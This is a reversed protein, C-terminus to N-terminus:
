QPNREFVNEVSADGASNKLDFVILPTTGDDDYITKTKASLDIRWRNTNVKENTTAKTNTDSTTTEITSLSSQISDSNAITVPSRWEVDIGGGGTTPEKVPRILDARYIRRNDTQSVNTVTTNDLKINVVSNNILINAEDVFTIGGYFDRIGDETTLNYKWWSGLERAEFNTGLIIDVEDAIYDAAFKTNYSSGDLGWTIYIDCDAQTDIFSLGSSTLVGTNELEQKATVGNVYTARLRIIDGITANASLLDVSTSSGTGGSVVANDLELGKTLNYIQYRTNDLLNVATVNVPQTLTINPGTNTTISASNLLILTITGGSSNTVENITCGDLTYTGTTSFDLTGSCTVNTLTTGTGSQYNINCDFTGGNLLTGNQTTVEGTTATAGGTFTNTKFTITNAAFNRVLSASADLVLDKTGLELQNGARGVITATEGAFNDYLFSKLADYGERADDITLLADTITKNTETISTDPLMVWDITLGGLGILNANPQGPLYNYAFLPIDANLGTFRIDDLPASEGSILTSVKAVIDFSSITGSSSTGSYIQDSTYGLSNILRRNGSDEDVLYYKTTEAASGDIETLNITLNRTQQAIGYRDSLAFAVGCFMEEVANSLTILKVSTEVNSNFQILNDTNVNRTTDLSELTISDMGGFPTQYDSNLMTIVAQNYARRPWFRMISDGDLTLDRIDVSSINSLKFQKMGTSSNYMVGSYQDLVAATDNLQWVGGIRIVGGKWTMVGNHLFIPNGTGSSTSETLILGTGASYKVRGNGTEEAGYNYTGSASLELSPSGAAYPEIILIERDPDHSLTGNIILRKTELNYVVIKSSFNTGMEYINTGDLSSNLNTLDSDTGSQVILDTASDYTVTAGSTSGTLTETATLTGSKNNIDITSGNDTILTATNGSTSGTLTEGAVLTGSISTVNIREAFAM